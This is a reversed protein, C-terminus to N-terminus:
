QANKAIYDIYHFSRKVKPLVNFKASAWVNKAQNPYFETSSM